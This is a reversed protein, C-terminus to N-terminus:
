AAPREHSLVSRIARCLFTMKHQKCSAPVCLSQRVKKIVCLPFVLPSSGRTSQNSWDIEQQSPHGRWAFCKREGYLCCMSTSRLILLPCELSSSFIHASRFTGNRTSLKPWDILDSDTTTMCDSGLLLFIPTIALGEINKNRSFDSGQSLFIIRIKRRSQPGSVGGRSARRRCTVSRGVSRAQAAAPLKEVHTCLRDARCQALGCM